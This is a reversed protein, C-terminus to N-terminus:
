SHVKILTFKFVVFLAVNLFSLGRDCPIRRIVLSLLSIVGPNAYIALGILETHALSESNLYSIQRFSKM